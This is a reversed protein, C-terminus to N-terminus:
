NIGKVGINQYLNSGDPCLFLRTVYRAKNKLNGENAICCTGLSEMCKLLYLKVSLFYSEVHCSYLNTFIIRQRIKFQDEM